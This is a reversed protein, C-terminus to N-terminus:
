AARRPLAPRVTALPQWPAQGLVTAADALRDVADPHALDGGDCDDPSTAQLLNLHLDTFLVTFEAPGNAVALDLWRDRNWGQNAAPDPYEPVFGRM